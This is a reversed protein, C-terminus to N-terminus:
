RTKPRWRDDNATQERRSHVREKKVAEAKKFAEAAEKARLAAEVARRAADFTREAALVARATAAHRAEAHKVEGRATARFQDAAVLAAAKRSTNPALQELRHRAKELSHATKDHAARAILV